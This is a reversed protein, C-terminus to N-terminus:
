VLLFSALSVILFTVSGALEPESEKGYVLALEPAIGAEAEVGVRGVRGVRALLREGEVELWSPEFDTVSPEVLPQVSVLTVHTPPVLVPVPEVAVTLTAAPASM